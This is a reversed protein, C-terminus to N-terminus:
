FIILVVLDDFDCWVGYKVDKLLIFEENVDKNCSCMILQGYVLYVMNYICCIICFVYGQKGGGESLKNIVM